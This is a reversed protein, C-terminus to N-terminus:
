GIAALVMVVGRSGALLLLAGSALAGIRGLAYIGPLREAREGRALKELTLVGFDISRQRTVLSGAVFCLYIAWHDFPRFLSVLCLVTGLGTALAIRSAASLRSLLREALVSGVADMGARIALALPLAAAGIREVFRALVFAELATEGLQACALLWGLGGAGPASRSTAPTLRSM